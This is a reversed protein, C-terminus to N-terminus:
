MDLVQLLGEAAQGGDVVDRELDLLALPPQDDARVAGPLGREEIQDGPVQAAIRSLDEKEVLFDRLPCGVAAHVEAQRAGVLDDREEGLVGQLV